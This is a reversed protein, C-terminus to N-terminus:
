ETNGSCICLFSAPKTFLEVLSLMSQLVQLILLSQLLMALEHATCYAVFSCAERPGQSRGPYSWFCVQMHTCWPQCYHSHLCRPFAHLVNSATQALVPNDCRRPIRLTPVTNPPSLILGADGQGGISADM